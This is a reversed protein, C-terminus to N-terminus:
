RFTAYEPDGGQLRCGLCKPVFDVYSLPPLDGESQSNQELGNQALEMEFALNSLGRESKSSVDSAECGAHLPLMERGRDM